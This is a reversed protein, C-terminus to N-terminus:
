SYLEGNLRTEIGDPTINNNESVTSCPLTSNMSRPQKCCTSDQMKEGISLGLGSQQVADRFSRFERKVEENVEKLIRKFEENVEKSLIEVVGELIASLPNQDGEQDQIM